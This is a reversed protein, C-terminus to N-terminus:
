KQSESVAAVNKHKHSALRARHASVHTHYVRAQHRSSDSVCGETNRDYHQGLGCEPGSGYTQARASVSAIGATFAAAFLVATMTKASM